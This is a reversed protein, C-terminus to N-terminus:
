LFDCRLFFLSLFDTEARFCNKFIQFHIGGIGGVFKLFRDKCGWPRFLAFFFKILQVSFHASALSRVQNDFKSRLVKGVIRDFKSRVVKGVLHDFSISVIISNTILFILNRIYDNCENVGLGWNGKLGFHCCRYSLLWAKSSSSYM